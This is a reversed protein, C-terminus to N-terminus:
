RVVSYKMFSPPQTLPTSARVPFCSHSVWTPFRAAAEGAIPTRSPSSYTGTSEVCPELGPPPRKTASDIRVPCMAQDIGIPAPVSDEGITHSLLTYKPSWAPLTYETLARFPCM